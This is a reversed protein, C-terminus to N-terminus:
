ESPADYWSHSALRKELAVREASIEQASRFGLRRLVAVPPCWGRIAHHVLFGMQTWFLAGWGGLRGTRRLSRMTKSASLTGLVGFTAILARDLHWERDLEALRATVQEPQDLRALAGRTQDDIRRNVADATHARILDHAPPQWDKTVM